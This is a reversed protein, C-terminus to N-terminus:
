SVEGAGESAGFCKPGRFEKQVDVQCEQDM